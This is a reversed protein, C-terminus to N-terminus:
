VVSKRDKRAYEVFETSTWLGSDPVGLFWNHYRGGSVHFMEYGAREAQVAQIPLVGGPVLVSGPRNILERLRATAERNVLPM